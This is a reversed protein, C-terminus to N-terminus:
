GKGLEVSRAHAAQVAATIAKGIGAHEMADLGAATTGKPSTVQERLTRLDHPSRQALEAAGRVTQLVLANAVDAPLGQALAAAELAEMWRFVYAPGSGSVATVADIDDENDVWLALGVAAMVARAADRESESVSPDAVMGAAGMGVLAPTNPMVRVIKTHGGLWTTLSAMRVGAAISIVTAAGILEALPECVAKMIQPKVALVLMSGAALPETLASAVPVGLERQCRGRAAEDPDVVLIDAPKHDRALLGGIIASAMNGGGIFVISM